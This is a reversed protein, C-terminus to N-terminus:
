FTRLKIEFERLGNYIDSFRGLTLSPADITTTTGKVYTHALSGRLAALSSLQAILKVHETTNPVREFIPRLQIRMLAELVTASALYRKAKRDEGTALLM